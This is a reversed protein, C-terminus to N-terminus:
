FLQHHLKTIYTHTQIDNEIKKKKGLCFWLYANGSQKDCLRSYVIYIIESSLTVHFDKKKEEKNAFLDRSTVDAFSM